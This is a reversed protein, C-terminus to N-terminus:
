TEKESGLLADVEFDIVEFYNKRQMEVEKHAAAISKCLFDEMKREAHARKDAVLESRRAKQQNYAKAAQHQSFLVALYVQAQQLHADAGM